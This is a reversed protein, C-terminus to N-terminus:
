DEETHQIDVSSGTYFFWSCLIKLSINSMPSHWTCDADVDWGCVWMCGCVCVYLVATHLREFRRETIFYKWYGNILLSYFFFRELFDPFLPSTLLCCVDWESCVLQASFRHRTQVNEEQSPLLLPRLSCKTTLGTHVACKHRFPQM